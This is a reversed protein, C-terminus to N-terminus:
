EFSEEIDEGFSDGFKEKAQQIQEEMWAINDPDKTPDEKKVKGAEAKMAELERKEEAEAWDLVAREKDDEIRDTELNRREEEAKDREIRDYFEYLLEELTYSLLVPDKLPRNYTRSWWSKLFLELQEESDLEARANKACIAKVAEIVSYEGTNKDRRESSDSKGDDRREM